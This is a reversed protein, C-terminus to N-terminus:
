QSIIAILKSFVKYDMIIMQSLVKRNLSVQSRKLLYMFKSYPIRHVLLAANIRSIWLRRYQRKRQKRGIYSYKLAKMLQQKATRFLSSHSGRFGKVAKLVKKRRKKAVNGRKVRVM